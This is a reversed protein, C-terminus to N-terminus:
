NWRHSTCSMLRPVASTAPPNAASSAAATCWNAERKACGTWRLPHAPAIACSGSLAQVTAIGSPVFSFEFISKINHGLFCKIAALAKLKKRFLSASYIVYTQIHIFRAFSYIDLRTFLWNRLALVKKLVGIKGAYAFLNQIATFRTGIGISDLM